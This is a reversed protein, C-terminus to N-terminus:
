GRNGKRIKSRLQLWEKGRRISGRLGRNGLNFVLRGALRQVTKISGLKEDQMWQLALLGARLERTKAPINSCCNRCYSPVNQRTKLKQRVEQFYPGLWVEALTKDKL